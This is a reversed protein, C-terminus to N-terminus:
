RRAKTGPPRYAETKYLALESYHTADCVHAGIGSVRVKTEPTKPPPPPPPPPSSLPPPSSSADASVVRAIVASKPATPECTWVRPATPECTWVRPAAECYCFRTNESRDRVDTVVKREQLWSREAAAMKSAGGGGGGGGVGGDEADDEADEESGDDADSGGDGQKQRSRVGCESTVDPWADTAHRVVQGFGVSCRGSALIRALAPLYVSAEMRVVRTYTKASSPSMGSDPLPAPTGVDVAVHVHDDPDPDDLEDADGDNGNGKEDETAAAAVAAAVVTASKGAAASFPSRRPLVLIATARFPTPRTHAMHHHPAYSGGREIALVRCQVADDRHPQFELKARRQACCHDTGRNHCAHKGDPPRAKNKSCVCV